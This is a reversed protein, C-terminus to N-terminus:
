RKAPKPMTTHFGMQKDPVDPGPPPDLLLMIRRLVETIAVEHTDLRSKLESELSALKKALERTDTLLGRMKVFARIVFVSMQIAQPSNLINAAMLAGHETFALPAFKVNRGRKLIVSQSRSRRLQEAETSNLELLFDPPFKDRNRRVAQNLVRTEVGYIKALDADLIVREGRITHIAGGISATPAKKLARNKKM